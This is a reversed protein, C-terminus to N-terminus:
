INLIRSSNNGNAIRFVILFTSSVRRFECHSYVWISFWRCWIRRIRQYETRLQEFFADDQMGRVNIQALNYQGNRYACFFIFQVPAILSHSVLRQAPQVQSPTDRGITNHAPKLTIGTASSQTSTFSQRITSQHVQRPTSPAEDNDTPRTMSPILSILDHQIINAFLRPLM